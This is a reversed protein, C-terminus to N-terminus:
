ILRTTPELGWHVRAYQMATEEWHLVFQLLGATLDRAQRHLHNEDYLASSDMGDILGNKARACLRAAYVIDRRLRARDELAVEEGTTGWQRLLGVNRRLLMEAVDIEASAEAYRLQPGPRDTAPEFVLPEIRKQAREDFTDLVGRAMGIVPALIAHNLVSMLPNRVRYWPSDYERAGFTDNVALDENRVIRYEPVFAGEIRVAKSGTGRLGSVFWTDVVEFDSKPILCVEEATHFLLWQAYDVGSSFKWFGSVRIGGDVVDRQTNLFGPVTSSMTDPGTAWYEEQGEEPFWGVMMQHLPWFSALWGSAGCGRAIELAVDLAVEYDHNMGGFREPQLMRLFGAQKFDEVTAPPLQRLQEAESARERVVPVLARAREM